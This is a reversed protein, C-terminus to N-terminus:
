EESELSEGCQFRAFDVIEVGNQALVDGVTLLPDLLYEQFLMRNEDDKTEETPPDEETSGICSPNMGVIHQCLQQGFLQLNQHAEFSPAVVRYALLSSYKGSQCKEGAVLDGTSHVYSSLLVEEGPIFCVSRRISMNEGLTGINLAVYDALTKGVQDEWPLCNIQEANMQKKVLRKEVRDSKCSKMVSNAVSSVLAQFKVNRAVFDTECNVEVMVGINNELVVGVLGHMTERGQLKTARAWGEKQAEQKLWELATAYDNNHQELAKKCSIFPFGTKKRLKALLGKKSTTTSYYRLM